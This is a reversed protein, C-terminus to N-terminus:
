TVLYDIAQLLFGFFLLIVAALNVYKDILYKRRWQLRQEESTARNWEEIKEEHAPSRFLCRFSATSKESSFFGRV